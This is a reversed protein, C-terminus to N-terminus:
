FILYLSLRNFNHGFDIIEFTVFYVGFRSVKKLMRLIVELEVAFYHKTTPETLLVKMTGHIISKQKSKSSM